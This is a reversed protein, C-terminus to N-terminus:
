KIHGEMFNINQKHAKILKEEQKVFDVIDKNCDAIWYGGGDLTTSCIPYFERLENIIYGVQRRSINTLKVIYNLNVKNEKGKRLLSLVVEQPIDLQKTM